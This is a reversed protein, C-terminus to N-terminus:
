KPKSFITGWSPLNKPDYKVEPKVEASVHPIGSIPQTVTGMGYSSVGALKMAKRLATLREDWSQAVSTLEEILPRKDKPVLELEEKYLQELATDLKKAKEAEAKLQELALAKEENERRLREMESLEAKEIESLKAKLQNEIEAKSKLDAELKAIHERMARITTNDQEMAVTQATAEMPIERDQAMSM